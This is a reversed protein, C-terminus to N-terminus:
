KLFKLVGGHRSCAGTHTAAHSYTHDKCEATAGTSDKDAASATKASATTKSSTKSTKTEGGEMKTSAKTTSKTSSKSVKTDSKTTTKTAGKTSSKTSAKTATKVGGHGSCAGKGVAASTTGDTCVTGTAQARGAALPAVIFLAVATAISITRIKM